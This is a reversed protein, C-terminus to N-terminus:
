KQWSAITVNVPYVDAAVNQKSDVVLNVKANNAYKRWMRDSKFDGYGEQAGADLRVRLTHKPDGKGAVTWSFNGTNYDTATNDGTILWSETGTVLGSVTALVTEEQDGASIQKSPTITGTITTGSIVAIETTLVKQTSLDVSDAYSAGSISGLIAVCVLKKIYRM